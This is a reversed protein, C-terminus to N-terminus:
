PHPSRWWDLAESSDSRFVPQGRNVTVVLLM